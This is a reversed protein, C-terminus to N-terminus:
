SSKVEEVILEKWNTRSNGWNSYDGIARIEYENSGIVLVDGNKIDLAGDIYAIWGEIPSNLTSRQAVEATLPDLPTCKLGTLNTSPKGRKGGTFTARKTSCDVLELRDFATM